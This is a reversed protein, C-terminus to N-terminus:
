RTGHKVHVVITKTRAIIKGDGDKIQAQFKHAGRNLRGVKLSMVQSDKVVTKGNMLLWVKHSQKVNLPPSIRLAISIESQNRIVQNQVPDVIDFRTYKFEETDGEDELSNTTDNKTPKTSGVVSIAHPTYKVSDETPQDSFYVNGKADTGKYIGANATYAYFFSLLLLNKIVLNLMRSLM